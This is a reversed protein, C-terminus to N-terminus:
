WCVRGVDEDVGRAAVDGGATLHAAPANPMTVHDGIPIALEPERRGRHRSPRAGEKGSPTVDSSRRALRQARWAIRPLMGQVVHMASHAIEGAFAVARLTLAVM